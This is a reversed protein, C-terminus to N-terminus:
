KGADDQKAATKRTKGSHSKRRGNPANATRLQKIQKKLRLTHAASRQDIHFFRERMRKRFYDYALGGVVLLFIWPLFAALFAQKSGGDPVIVAFVVLAVALIIAATAIPMTRVFGALFGREKGRPSGTAVSAGSSKLAFSGESAASGKNQGSKSRFRINDFIYGAIDADAQHDIAILNGWSATPVRDDGWRYFRKWSHSVGYKEIPHWESVFVDYNKEILIKALKEASYGLKETKADEYEVVMINPRPSFSFGNLASLENGEVDIKLVDIRDIKYNEIADDLTVTEVQQSIEHGSRYFDLHRGTENDIARPDVTVDFGGAEVHKVLAGRNVDDPEFAFVRWGRRAFPTLTTGRHAGVDILTGGSYNAMSSVAHMEEVSAADSRSYAGVFRRSPDDARLETTGAQEFLDSLELSALCILWGSSGAPIEEVFKVLASSDRHQVKAQVRYGRRQMAGWLEVVDYGLAFLKSDDFYVLAVPVQDANPNIGAIVTLPNLAEVRLVSYELLGLAAFTTALENREPPSSILQIKKSQFGSANVLKELVRGDCEILITRWDAAVFADLAWPRFVGVALLTGKGDLDLAEILAEEEGNHLHRPASM